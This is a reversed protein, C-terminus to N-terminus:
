VADPFFQVEESAVITLFTEVFDLDEVQGLIVPVLGLHLPLDRRGAVRVCHCPVVVLQVEEATM